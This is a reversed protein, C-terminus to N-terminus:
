DFQLSQTSASRLLPLLISETLNVIPQSRKFNGSKGLQKLM